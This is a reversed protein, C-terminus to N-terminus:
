QCFKMIIALFVWLIKLTGPEPDLSEDEDDIFSTEENFEKITEM